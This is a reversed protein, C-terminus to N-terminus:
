DCLLSRKTVNVVVALLCPSPPLSIWTQEFAVQLAKLLYLSLSMHPEPKHPICLISFNVPKIHNSSPLTIGTLGSELWNFPLYNENQHHRSLFGSQQHLNSLHIGVLCKSVLQQINGPGECFPVVSESSTQIVTEISLLVTFCSNCKHAM